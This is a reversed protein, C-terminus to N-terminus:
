NMTEACLPRYVELWDLRAVANQLTEATSVGQGEYLVCMLILGICMTDLVVGKLKPGIDATLSDWFALAIPLASEPEPYDVRQRNIVAIFRIQYANMGFPLLTVGEWDILGVIRPLNSRDM